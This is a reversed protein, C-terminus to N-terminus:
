AAIPLPHSAMDLQWQRGQHRVGGGSKATIKESAYVTLYRSRLDISQKEFADPPYLLRALAM